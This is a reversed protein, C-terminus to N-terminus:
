RPAIGDRLAAAWVWALAENHDPDKESFQGIKEVLSFNFFVEGTKDKVEPFLKM